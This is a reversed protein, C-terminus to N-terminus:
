SNCIREFSLAPTLANRLVRFYRAYKRRIYVYIEQRKVGPLEAFQLTYSLVLRFRGPHEINQILLSYVSLSVFLIDQLDIVVNERESADRRHGTRLGVAVM